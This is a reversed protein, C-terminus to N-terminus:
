TVAESTSTRMSKHEFKEFATKRVQHLEIVLARIDAETKGAMLAALLADVESDPWGSMRPGLAVAKTWLGQSIKLYLTSDSCGSRKRVAPKRLFTIAM